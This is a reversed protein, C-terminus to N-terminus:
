SFRIKEFIFLGKRDTYSKIKGDIIKIHLLKKIREPLDLFKEELRSLTIKDAGLRTAWEHFDHNKEFLNFHVLRLVGHNFDLVESITYSRIHSNDRFYEIENLYADEVDVISDVLVFVGKPSLVRSVEKFFLDPNEFHHMAIRCTVLEFVGEKFPIFEGRGVAPVIGYTDSAIKLMNISTDVGFIVDSKFSKTFHGTATGIDLHYGFGRKRFYKKVYELDEGTKHDSSNLYNLASKNFGEM